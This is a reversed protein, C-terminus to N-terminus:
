EHDACATAKAAPMTFAMTTGQGPSSEIRVSGGHREVIKKVVALGIGNGCYKDREHLRQFIQFVREFYQPEIGIGNDAVTLEWMAGRPSASIEIRPPADARFKIANSILNQFVQVLQTRDALLSPLEGVTIRASNDQVVKRLNCLVEDVVEKCDTPKPHKAHTGVRSFSLLDNILQQMRKAGDVAYAIYKDAKDDLKGQYRQALLQTYSAVMRLPEQLDHSAVYAFQALEHNSRVLQENVRRLETEVMKQETIDVALGLLGAIDGSDDFYPSYWSRFCIGGVEVETTVREGAFAREMTRLMDPFDKYMDYVSVGVVQGAQLGLKALGRGESLLFTGDKGIVFVIEESNTILAKFRRESDRLEERVQKQDSVDEFMAVFRNEESRFATVHYWRSFPQFYVDFKAEKGSRVVMGYIAILDPEADQIGPVVETVRRGVVTDRQLGTFQEFSKNVKLFRYDSPNGEGDFIMEHEAWGVPMTEFLLALNKESEALEQQFRAREAASISENPEPQLTPSM